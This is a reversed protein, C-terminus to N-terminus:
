KRVGHMSEVDSLQTIASMPGQKIILVGEDITIDAKAFRQHEDCGKLILCVDLGYWKLSREQDPISINVDNTYDELRYIDIREQEMKSKIIMLPGRIYAQCKGYKIIGIGSITTITLSQLEM